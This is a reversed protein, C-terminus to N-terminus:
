SPDSHSFPCPSVESMPYIHDAAHHIAGGLDVDSQLPLHITTLEVSLAGVQTFYQQCEMSSTSSVAYNLVSSHIALISSLPEQPPLYRLISFSSFFLFLPALHM